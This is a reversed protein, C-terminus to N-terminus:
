SVVIRMTNASLLHSQPLIIKAQELSMHHKAHSTYPIRQYRAQLLTVPYLSADQKAKWNPSTRHSRSYWKKTSFVEEKIPHRKDGDLPDFRARTQATQVKRVGGPLAAATRGKEKKITAPLGTRQSRAAARSTKKKSHHSIAYGRVARNAVV